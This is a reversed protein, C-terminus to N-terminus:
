SLIQMYTNELYYINFFITEKGIGSKSGTVVYVKGKM